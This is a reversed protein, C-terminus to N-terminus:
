NQYNQMFEKIRRCAEQLNEMSAAYSLRVYREGGPGFSLGPILAVRAEQALLRVFQWGDLDDFIAPIKAFIYFAGDPSALEFGAENLAQAVYDRRVQYETLMTKSDDQGHQMAELAAYLVNDPSATVLYQHSKIVENIFDDPGLLFGVRWGTMAHSKSLGTILIVQNFLFESMSYHQGQYLLEAYVEDCLVWIGAEKAVEALAKLQERSYTVGTPNSPYVLVLAKTEPNADLAAQLKAPTLIFNDESTDIMVTEAHNVSASAAYIPFVPTPMLLKDGPNMITQMAAAIGETAGLTTIVQDARYHLNFKQNYYDAAAQRLEMYGPNPAYHSQNDNIAAIAAQKIHEPTNFDPEGLTLKIIGEIQSAEQDFQRIDSVAIKEVQHNFKNALM